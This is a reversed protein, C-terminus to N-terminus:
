ESFRYNKRLKNIYEIRYKEEKFFCGIWSMKAIFSEEDYPKFISLFDDLINKNCGCIAIDQTTSCYLEWDKTEDYVYFNFSSYFLANGKGLDIYKEDFIEFSFSEDLPITVFKSKIISEAKETLVMEITVKEGNIKSSFTKIKDNFKKNLIIESDSFLYYNSYEKKHVFEPLVNM